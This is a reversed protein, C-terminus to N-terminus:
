NWGYLIWNIRVTYGALMGIAPHWCYVYMQYISWDAIECVFQAANWDGNTAVAAIPNTAFEYGVWGAGNGDLGLVTSNGQISRNGAAM